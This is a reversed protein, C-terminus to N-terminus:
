EKVRVSWKVREQLVETFIAVDVDCVIRRRPLLVLIAKTMLPVLGTKDSIEVLTALPLLLIEFLLLSVHQSHFLHALIDEGPTM